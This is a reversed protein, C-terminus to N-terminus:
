GRKAEEEAAAAFMLAHANGPSAEARAQAELACLSHAALLSQRSADALRSAEAFLKLSPKKAALDFLFRSAGLQWAGTAVISSPGPGCVGGGVTRALTTCHTKRFDSAARMYPAFLADDAIAALGMKAALRTTERRSQGGASQATRAGKAWTGNERREGRSPAEAPAQAVGRPLEDVPPVEVHPQGAGTGHGARVFSRATRTM